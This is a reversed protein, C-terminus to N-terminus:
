RRRCCSPGCRDVGTLAMDEDTADPAPKQGAFAVNAAARLYWDTPRDLPSRRATGRGGDRQRRLRAPGHGQRLRHLLDGHRDARRGHDECAAARGGALAGDITRTPVGHWPAAFGWSEYLLSDPM